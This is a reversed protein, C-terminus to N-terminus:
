LYVHTVTKTKKNKQQPDRKKVKSVVYAWSRWFGNEFGIKM